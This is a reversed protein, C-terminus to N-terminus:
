FIKDYLILIVFSNNDFRMLNLNTIYIALKCGHDHKYKYNSFPNM